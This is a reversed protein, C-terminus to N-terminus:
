YNTKQKWYSLLLYERRHAADIRNYQNFTQQLSNISHKSCFTLPIKNRLHLSAPFNTIFISTTEIM